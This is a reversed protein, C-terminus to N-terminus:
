PLGELRLFHVRGGADGAVITRGEPTVALSFFPTDGLFIALSAGTELDWVCCEGKVVEWVEAAVLRGSPHRGHIWYDDLNRLLDPDASLM